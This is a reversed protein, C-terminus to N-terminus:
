GIAYYIRTTDANTEEMLLLSPSGTSVAYGVAFGVILLLCRRIGAFLSPGIQAADLGESFAKYEGKRERSNNV